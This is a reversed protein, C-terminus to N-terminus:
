HYRFNSHKTEKKILNMNLDAGNKAIQERATLDMMKSKASLQSYPFKIKYSNPFASDLPGHITQEM